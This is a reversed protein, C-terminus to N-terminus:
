DAFDLIDPLTLLLAISMQVPDDGGLSSVYKRLDFGNQYHNKM